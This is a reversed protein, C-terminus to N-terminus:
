EYVRRTENKRQERDIRENLASLLIWSEYDLQNQEFPFGAIQLRRLELMSVLEPGISELKLEPCHSCTWDQYLSRKESCVDCDAIDKSLLLDLARM